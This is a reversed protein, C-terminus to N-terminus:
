CYCNIHWLLRHIVMNFLILYNIDIQALVSCCDIENKWNKIPSNRHKKWGHSKDDGFGHQM